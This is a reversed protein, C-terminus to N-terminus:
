RMIEIATTDDCVCLLSVLDNNIEDWRNPRAWGHLIKVVAWSCPFTDRCCSVISLITLSKRDTPTSPNAPSDSTGSPSSNAHAFPTTSIAIDVPSGALTAPGFMCTSKNDDGPAPSTLFVVPPIDHVVLPNDDDDSLDAADLNPIDNAPLLLQPVAPLPVVPFSSLPMTPPITATAPTTVLTPM